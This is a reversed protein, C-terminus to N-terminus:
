GWGRKRRFEEAEARIERRRANQRMRDREPMPVVEPPTEAAGTAGKGHWYSILEAERHGCVTESGCIFCAPLTM